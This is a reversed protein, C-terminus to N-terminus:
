RGVGSVADQKKDEHGPRTKGSGSAGQSGQGQHDEQPGLHQASEPYQRHQRERTGQDKEAGGFQSHSPTEQSKGAQEEPSMTGSSQHQSQGQSQGTVLRLGSTDVGAQATGILSLGAGVIVVAIAHQM